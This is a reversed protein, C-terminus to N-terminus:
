RSTDTMIQVGVINAVEEFSLINTMSSENINFTMPLLIIKRMQNLSLDVENKFM